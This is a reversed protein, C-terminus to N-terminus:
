KLKASKAFTEEKWAGATKQGEIGALVKPLTTGDEM